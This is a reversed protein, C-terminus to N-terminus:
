SQEVSGRALKSVPKEQKDQKLQLPVRLRKADANQTVIMNRVRM